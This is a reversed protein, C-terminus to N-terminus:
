GTAIIPPLEAAQACAGAVLLLPLLLAKARILGREM